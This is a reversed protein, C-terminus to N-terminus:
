QWLQVYQHKIFKDKSLFDGTQIIDGEVEDSYYIKAYTVTGDELVITIIGSRYESDENFIGEYSDLLFNKEYVIQWERLMDRPPLTKVRNPRLELLDVVISSEQDDVPTAVPYKGDVLAWGKLRFAGHHFASTDLGFTKYMEQGVRLTGYVFIFPTVFACGQEVDVENSVDSIDALFRQSMENEVM